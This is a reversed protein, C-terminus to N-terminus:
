HRRLIILHHTTTLGKDSLGHQEIAQVNEVVDAVLSFRERSLTKLEEALDRRGGSSGVHMIFLGDRVLVTAVMGFLDKYCAPSKSQERELFGLSTEHFDKEGWGCFWLRLWNPRDFRMGLFPPSTIVVDFHSPYLAVLARFDGHHSTGPRFGEPLPERLAREM